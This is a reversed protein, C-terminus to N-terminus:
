IRRVCSRVRTPHPNRVRKRTRTRAPRQDGLSRVHAQVNEIDDVSEAHRGSGSECPMSVAYTVARDMDERGGLFIQPPKGGRELGVWKMNSQGANVFM